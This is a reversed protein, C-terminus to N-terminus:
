TRNLWEFKLGKSLLIPLAVKMGEYSYGKPKNMHMLIVDGPKANLLLKIIKNKSATAGEDGAITYGGINWHNQNLWTLSNHDYLAGADRYWTPTIHFNDKIARDGDNVEKELGQENIVTPLHYTGITSYIAEKHNAGHNEIKFLSKNENLFVITQPNHEIWKKTVFITTHIKEEKLFNLIEWDTTGGCADLTLAITNNPEITKINILDNQKAYASSSPFSFTILIPLILIILKM